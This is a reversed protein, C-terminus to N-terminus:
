IPTKPAHAPPPAPRAAPAPEAPNEPPALLDGLNGWDTMGERWYNDTALFHGENYLTRLEEDDYGGMHQGARAVFTQVAVKDGTEAYPTLPRSVPANM